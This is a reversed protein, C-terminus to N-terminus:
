RAWFRSVLQGLRFGARYGRTWPIVEGSGPVYNPRRSGTCKLEFPGDGPVGMAALAIRATHAAASLMLPDDLSFPIVIARARDTPTREIEFSIRATSLASGVQEFHLRAEDANRFRFVLRGGVKKYHRKVFTVSRDTEPEGVLIRGGDALAGGWSVLYRQIEDPRVSYSVPQELWGFFMLILVLLVVCVTLVGIGAFIYLFM